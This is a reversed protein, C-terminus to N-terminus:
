AAENIALHCGIGRLSIALDRENVKLCSLYGLVGQESDTKYDMGSNMGLIFNTRASLKIERPLDYDFYDMRPLYNAPNYILNLLLVEASIQTVRVQDAGAFELKKNKADLLISNKSNLQLAVSGESVLMLQRMYGPFASFQCIANVLGLSIRWDFNILSADTPYVAIQRTIGAGNKWPSELYNEAGIVPM